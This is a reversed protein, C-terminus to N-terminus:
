ENIKIILFNLVYKELKYIIFKIFTIVHQQVLRILNLVVVIAGIMSEGTAKLKAHINGM